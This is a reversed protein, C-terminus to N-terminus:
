RLGDLLDFTQALKCDRRDLVLLKSKLIKGDESIVEYFALQKNESLFRIEEAQASTLRNRRLPGIVTQMLDAQSHYIIRSVHPVARAIKTRVTRLCYRTEAFAEGMVLWVISSFIM